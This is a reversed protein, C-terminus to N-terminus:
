PESNPGLTLAMRVLEALSGAAMKQMIRRRHLQLTVESIGLEAAAQKNLMGRVVLPMVQRERPTLQAYRGQLQSRETRACREHGHREIAARVAKLLAQDCLPKTLFDVAGEKIARVSSPIDGHGTIFVIPPHTIDHIERQFDLGSLGPLQVDLLLCSAAAPRLFALYDRVSAFSAVQYQWSSALAELAERVRWDDDVILVWPQEFSMGLTPRRVGRANCDFAAYRIMTVRGDRATMCMLAAGHAQRDRDSMM